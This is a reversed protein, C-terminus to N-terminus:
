LTFQYIGTDETGGTTLIFISRAFSSSSLTRAEEEFLSLEYLITM